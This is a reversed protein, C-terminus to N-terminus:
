VVRLAFKTAADPYRDIVLSVELTWNVDSHSTDLSPPADAPVPLEWVATVAQRAPEFQGDGEVLDVPPLPIRHRERTDTRTDTGVTYRVEEVCLLTATLERLALGRKLRQAFRVEATEGPRLPWPSIAAEAPHVAARVLLAHGLVGLFLLTGPVLILALTWEPWEFDRFFQAAMFTLVGTGFVIGLLACGVGLWSQNSKLRVGAAPDDGLPEAKFSGALDTEGTPELTLVSPSM